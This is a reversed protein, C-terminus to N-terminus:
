QGFRDSLQPDANSRQPSMRLQNCKNAGGCFRPKIHAAGHRDFQISNLHNQKVYFSYMLPTVVLERLM